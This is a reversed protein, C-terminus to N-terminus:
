DIVFIKEWGHKTTTITARTLKNIVDIEGKLISFDFNNDKRVHRYTHVHIYM